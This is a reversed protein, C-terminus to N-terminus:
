LKVSFFTCIASCLFEPTPHIGHQDGSGLQWRTENSPVIVGEPIEIKGFQQEYARLQQLAVAVLIKVHLPSMMVRVHQEVSLTRGANYKWTASYLSEVEANTLM